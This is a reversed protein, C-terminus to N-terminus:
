TYSEILEGMAKAAKAKSSFVAAKYPEYSFSRHKVAYKWRTFFSRKYQIAWGGDVKVLRWRM